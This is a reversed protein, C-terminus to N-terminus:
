MPVATVSFTFSHTGAGTVIVWRARWEDGILHRVAAAGLATANEFEATTIHASIRTIYRLADTGNGLTQTFHVVDVWNTGDLKTQVFVDCTDDVASAANTQDLVFAYAQAVPLKVASGNGNATRAASSALTTAEFAGKAPRASAPDRM